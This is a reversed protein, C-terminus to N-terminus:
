YVTRNINHKNWKTLSHVILVSDFRLFLMPYSNVWEGRASEGEGTFDHPTLTFYYPLTCWHGNGSLQSTLLIYPYITKDVRTLANPKQVNGETLDDM